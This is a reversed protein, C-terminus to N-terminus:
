LLDLEAVPTLFPRDCLVLLDSTSAASSDTEVVQTRGYSNGFPIDCSHDLHTGATPPVYPGTTRECCGPRAQPVSQRGLLVRLERPHLVFLVGDRTRSM